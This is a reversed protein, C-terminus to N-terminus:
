VVFWPSKMIVRSQNRAVQVKLIRGATRAYAPARFRIGQVDVRNFERWEDAVALIAIRLQQDVDDLVSGVQVAIFVERFRSPHDTKFFSV